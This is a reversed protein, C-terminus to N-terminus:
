GRRVRRPRHRGRLVHARRPVCTHYTRRDTITRVRGARGVVRLRLAVHVTGRPMGKLSLTIRTIGGRSSRAAHSRVRHGNVLVTASLVRTGVPHRPRLVLGRLSACSIHGRGFTASVSGGGPCGTLVVTLPGDSTVNLQANCDVRARPANITVTSLNGANIDLADRVPASPVAGWSRSQSVYPVAPIQGGTLAGAGHATATPTPDGVGFGESRVDVKGLPAAGSPDRLKLGSVWYAHGSTTGDAPFDMTPNYVYSVHAPNRDVPVYGLFDAGPQFQDNIALTLHEGLTFTDFEYRYGLSDFTNAQALVGAYPVLEDTTEDWILFPINRESALMRNTNSAVGGTPDGPPIWIGLAPPGVTPQARGFLDPFQSTFKYTAYGGMSYGAIATWAPDLQYHAAADAWMEFTDAGAYDYYWGDPGRGEATIVISGPGREGFQSQNHTGEYQNYNASLSHLLLTLGWGNAPMPKDPPVYIAYPQLAGRLEGKCATPVGCAVSYDAGQATEFHSAYIRDFAGTQPVGTPGGPMDDNVGSALKNFDVMAFLPSIDNAALANGQVEDRWYSPDSTSSSNPTGPVPEQKNWRFAVNFFAAPTAAHGAGGPHTADAQGQPLLYRNNATDWLGVGAALRVVQGTPNWESHPVEVTIQRRALDDSVTPAPGAVPTGTVADLLDATGGHVTLFMQAPAVVNAGHPFPHTVGPTGGIAISVGVLSPDKMTNLSIRFATSDALPKVRLEVLDAANNAYRPDTPYTYTGNPLSFIDGDASQGGPDQRQDNPDRMEKAGHDDYLFDQYLFEGDRYASAGSVMIPAAHWPSGAANQLQAPQALPAYLIDPGPRPAPGSYLSGADAAAPVALCCAGFIASGATVLARRLRM